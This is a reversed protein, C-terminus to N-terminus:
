SAAILANLVSYMGYWSVVASVAIGIAVLGSAVHSYLSTPGRGQPHSLENGVRREALRLRWVPNVWAFFLATCVVAVIAMLVVTLWLVVLSSM